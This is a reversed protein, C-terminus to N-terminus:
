LSSDTVTPPPSHPLELEMVHSRGEGSASSDGSHDPDERVKVKVDILFDEIGQKVSVNEKWYSLQPQPGTERGGLM